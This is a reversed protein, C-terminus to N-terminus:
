LGLHDVGTAGSVPRGRSDRTVSENVSVSGNVLDIGGVRMAAVEPFRMGLVTALYIM